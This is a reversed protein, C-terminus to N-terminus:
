VDSFCVSFRIPFWVTIILFRYLAIYRLDLLFSCLASAKASLASSPRSLSRFAEPLLLYGDIRLYGFPSVRCLLGRDDMRWYMVYPPSGGSSFCRLLSLFLLFCRNRSYRRAFGSSGLGTHTCVPTHVAHNLSLRASHNQSLWGSLTFAGYAFPSLLLRYGSYSSVRPVKDSPLPVM